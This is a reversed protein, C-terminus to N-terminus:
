VDKDELLKSGESLDTVIKAKWIKNKSDYEVYQNYRHEVYPKMQNYTSISWSLKDMLDFKHITGDKQIRQLMKTANKLLLATAM